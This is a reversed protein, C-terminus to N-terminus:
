PLGEAVACGVHYGAEAKSEGSTAHAGGVAMANVEDRAVGDM